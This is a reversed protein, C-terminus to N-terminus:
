RDECVLEVVGDDVTGTCTFRTDMEVPVAPDIDDVYGFLLFAALVGVGVAVLLIMTRRSSM